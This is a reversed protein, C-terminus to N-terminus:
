LSLKRVVNVMLTNIIVVLISSLASIFRMLGKDKFTQREKLNQLRTVEAEQWQKVLLVLVFSAGIILITFIYSVLGRFFREVTSANLNEWFIDSPEPARRFNWKNKKACCCCFFNQLVQIFSNHQHGLVKLVDAPKKLIVFVVGTFLAKQQEIDAM